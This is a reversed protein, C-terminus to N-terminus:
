DELNMKNINGSCLFSPLLFLCSLVAPSRPSPYWLALFHWLSFFPLFVIIESIRLQIYSQWIKGASFKEDYPLSVTQFVLLFTYLWCCWLVLQISCMELLARFISTWRIKWTQILFLWKYIQKLKYKQENHEKIGALIYKDCKKYNAWRLIWVKVVRVLSNFSFFLFSIFFLYGM